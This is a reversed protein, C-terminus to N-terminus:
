FHVPLFVIKVSMLSALYCRTIKWHKGREWWLCAIIHTEQQSRNQINYARM